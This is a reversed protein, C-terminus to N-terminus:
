GRDLRVAIFDRVRILLSAGITRRVTRRPAQLSPLVPEVTLAEALWPSSHSSWWPAVSLPRELEAALPICNAPCRGRARGGADVDAAAVILDVRALLAVVAGLVAGATTGPRSSCRRRRRGPGPRPRRCRRRCRASRSRCASQLGVDAAVAQDAGALAAVVAVLDVAVLAGVLAGGPQPSPTTAASRATRRRCGRCRRRRCWCSCWRRDAAVAKELRDVALLAVVARVVAVGAHAGEVQLSAVQPSPKTNLSPPASSHSRPTSCRGRCRRCRWSCSLTQPSPSLFGRRPSRRRCGRRRRRSSAARRARPTRCCCRRGRRAQSSPLFPSLSSPQVSRQLGGTTRRRSRGASGRRATRGRRRCCCCRRRCGRRCSAAQPSPRTWAPTSCHSSPGLLELVPRCPEVAGAADAAVAEDAGALGAVVAVLLLSAQVLTQLCAVQPSPKLCGPSCHSRPPLLLLGALAGEGALEGLAAVAELLGALCHSSPLWCRCSWRRCTSQV